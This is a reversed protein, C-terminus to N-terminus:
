RKGLWIALFDIPPIVEKAGLPPPLAPVYGFGEWRTWVYSPDELPRDFTFRVRRPRGDLTVEDVTATMGAVHAVEGAHM